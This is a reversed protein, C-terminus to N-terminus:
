VSATKIKKPARETKKHFIAWFFFIYLRYLFPGAFFAFWTIPNKNELGWAGCLAGCIRGSGCDSGVLVGRGLPVTPVM